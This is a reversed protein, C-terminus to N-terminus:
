ATRSAATPTGVGLLAEIEDAELPKALLYGQGMSCGSEYLHRLQDPAEIGEAITTLDLTQGFHVIARVLASGKPSDAIEDVFSKDIKVTDVPLRRVYTLSSYGTGFDDIALRVGLSELRHLVEMSVETDRLLVSETIELMLCRPSLGTEALSAAVIDPLDAQQLQRASLNVSVILPNDAGRRANWVSAQRCAEHIVWRGIPLILGTEEALPVFKQPSTLGHRPDVWRVLAEVGAVRAGLRDASLGDLSGDALAVIPQYHLAFEGAALARHLDSELDLSRVPMARM